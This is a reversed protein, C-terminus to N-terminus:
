IICGQKLLSNIEELETSTAKTSSVNSKSVKFYGIENSIVDTKLTEFIVNNTNSIKKYYVKVVPDIEMLDTNLSKNEVSSQKVLYPLEFGITGKATKILTKGDDDLVYIFATCSNQIVNCKYTVNIEKNIVSSVELEEIGIYPLDIEIKSLLIDLYNNYFGNVSITGLDLETYENLLSPAQVGTNKTGLYIDKTVGTILNCYVRNLKVVYQTFDRIIVEPEEDTPRIIYEKLQSSVNCMVSGDVKYGCLVGYKDEFSEFVSYETTASVVLSGSVDNFTENLVLQYINSSIKTFTANFDDDLTEYSITPAESFIYNADTTITLTIETGMEYEEINLSCNELGTTDIPIYVENSIEASAYVKMPCYSYELGGLDDFELTPLDDNNISDLFDFTIQQTEKEKSSIDTLPVNVWDYSYIPNIYGTVTECGALVECESTLSYGSHAKIKLKSDTIFYYWNGVGLLPIDVNEMYGLSGSDCLIDINTINNIYNDQILCVIKRYSSSLWCWPKFYSATDYDDVSSFIVEYYGVGDLDEKYVDNIVEDFAYWVDADGYELKLQTNKDMYYNELPYARVIFDGDLSSEIDTTVTYYYKGNGDDVPENSPFIETEVDDIKEFFRLYYCGRDLDSSKDLLYFTKSM